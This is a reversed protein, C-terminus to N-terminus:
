SSTVLAMRCHRHGEGQKTKDGVRAFVPYLTELFAVDVSLM